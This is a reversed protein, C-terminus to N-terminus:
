RSTAGSRAACGACRPVASSSRRRPAGDHVRGVRRGAPGMRGDRRLLGDPRLGPRDLRPRRALGVADDDGALRANADLAAFFREVWGSPGWCHEFTTPWGGFKEGDDGMTGLRDGASRRTTAPSLRHRRRGGRVPDPLPPGARHRLGDPGQGPRRDHVPGLAGGRPDGRGPLPRRRPDDLRLRGDVLSPRCTRSGSGSPSGRAARGRPRVAGRARRGDPRAPRDPRAGAARRPGARVLRRRRDRGPRARRAGRPSRHLGAARGPDLRAAARQLPPRPPRRSPARAGRADAPLRPRLHRRHGLRLQRGAPPQPADPRALNPADLLSGRRGAARPRTPRIM